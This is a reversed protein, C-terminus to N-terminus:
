DAIPASNLSIGEADSKIWWLQEHWDGLVYRELQEDSRGFRHVDPRHTHGHIIQNVKFHEMTRIVTSQNVDMIEASKSEKGQSSKARLDQGIKRRTASPLLRFLSKILPNQVFSRFRLYSKDDTCLLDGHMLLVRRGHYEYLHYDPLLELDAAKAFKKDILFDRNGAQFFVRVKRQALLRLEAIVKIDLENKSDHGVWAEFLDGLIYLQKVDEDLDHLFRCFARYIEPRDDGLHLDSIFIDSM